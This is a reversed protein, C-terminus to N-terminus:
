FVIVSCRGHVQGPGVVQGPKKLDILVVTPQAQIECM